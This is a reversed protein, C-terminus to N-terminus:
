LDSPNFGQSEQERELEERMNERERRKSRIDEKSRDRPGSERMSRRNGGFKEFPEFDEDLLEDLSLTAM